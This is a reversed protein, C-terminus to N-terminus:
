NLLIVIIVTGYQQEVDLDLTVYQQEVDLDLTFLIVKITGYLKHPTGSVNTVLDGNM